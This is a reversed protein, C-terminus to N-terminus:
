GTEYEGVSAIGTGLPPGVKEEVRKLLESLEFPKVLIDSQMEALLSLKRESLRPDTTGVIVPIHRTVSDAQMLGLIREGANQHELWLDLLVLDSQEKLIVEFVERATRHLIMRYGHDTLV